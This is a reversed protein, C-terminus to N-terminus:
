SQCIVVVNVPGAGPLQVGVGAHTASGTLIQSSSYPLEGSPLPVGASESMSFCDEPIARHWLVMGGSPSSLDSRWGVTTAGRPRSSTVRGALNVEATFLIHGGFSSTNLKTPTVSGARLQRTGVSNRPLTVAAYGTGGLAVFLALAGLSQQRLVTITRQIM